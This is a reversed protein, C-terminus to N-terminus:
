TNQVRELIEPFQDNEDALAVIWAAHVLAEEVTMTQVPLMVVVRDGKRGVLQRNTIEISKV